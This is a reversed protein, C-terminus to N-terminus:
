DFHGTAAWSRIETNQYVLHWEAGLKLSRHERGSHYVTGRAMVPGSNYLTTLTEDITHIESLHKLRQEHFTKRFDSAIENYKEPYLKRAEQPDMDFESTIQGLFRSNTNEPLVELKHELQKRKKQLSLIEPENIFIVARHSHVRNDTSPLSKQRAINRVSTKTIGLSDALTQDDLGTPIFFWEGQRKVDLGKSMAQKVAEPKLSEFAQEVTQAPESLQAVFYSGEDLACLFTDDEKKLLVGGLIHWYGKASFREPLEENYRLPIFMGQKPTKFQEYTPEQIVWRNNEDKIYNDKQKFFKGTKKERYLGYEQHDYLVDLINDMTIQKFSLGAADLATRSVTPGSCHSQVLGQHGSTSQSYRDGNKIFYPKNDKEGLYKAMEFWDFSYIYDDRCSINGYRFAVKQTHRNPTREAYRKVLESQTM